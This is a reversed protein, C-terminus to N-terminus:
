GVEIVLSEDFHANEFRSGAPNRVLRTGTRSRGNLEPSAPRRIDLSSHVHGHAWLAIRDTDTLSSLDSACNGAAWRGILEADLCDPHPAHHTVVVLSVAPDDHAAILEALKARAAEHLTTADAATFWHEGGDHRVMIAEGTEARRDVAPGALAYDTWLTAGVFRTGAITTEEGELLTVDNAQAWLHAETLNEEVEGNWHEHNGMVAVVPKDGALRRLTAFGLDTRGQWVDGPCVLVDFDPRVPDFADPYPANELHLDSLIWLKSM